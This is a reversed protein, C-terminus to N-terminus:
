ARHAPRRRIPVMGVAHRGRGRGALAAAGPMLEHVVRAAPSRVAPGRLTIRSAVAVAVVALCAVYSWGAWPTPSRGDFLGHVIALPWAVYVSLHIARWLQPRASSAYRRRTIGTGLIAIQLDSAITGLGLYFRGRAGVFPLVAAPLGARASVVELLVHVALFGVAVLSVARHAAQASVRAQATLVHRGAAAVGLVVAATLALLAFVGSDTVLSQSLATSLERGGPGTLATVAAAAIVALGAVAFAALLYATVEASNMGAPWFRRMRSVRRHDMGSM